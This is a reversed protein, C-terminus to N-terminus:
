PGLAKLGRFVGFHKLNPTVVPLRLRLATAALLCDNWGVGDSLVHREMWALARRFDSEDPVILRCTSILAMTRRMENRNMVGTLLEGAVVAHMRVRSGPEEESREGRARLVIAAARERGKLYDIFIATDLLM